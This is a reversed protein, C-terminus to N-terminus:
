AKEDVVPAAEKKDPVKQSVVQDPVKVDESKQLKLGSDSIVPINQDESKDPKASSQAQEYASIKAKDPYERTVAGTTSDRYQIVTTHTEKDIKIVPSFFVAENKVDSQAEISKRENFRSAQESSAASISAVENAAPKASNIEM